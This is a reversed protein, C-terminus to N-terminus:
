MTNEQSSSLLPTCPSLCLLDTHVAQLYLPQCELLLLGLFGLLGGPLQPSPSATLVIIFHELCSLGRGVLGVAHRLPVRWPLHRCPLQNIKTSHILHHCIKYWLISKSSPASPLFIHSLHLPAFFLFYGRWRGEDVCLKFGPNRHSVCVQCGASTKKWHAPGPYLSVVYTRLGVLLYLRQPFQLLM